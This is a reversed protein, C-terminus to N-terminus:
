PKNAPTADAPTLPRVPAPYVIFTDHADRVVSAGMRHLSAQLEILSAPPLQLAQENPHEKALDPYDEGPERTMEIHAGLIWSVTHTGTFAAVRDISSRYDDFLNTPVYLRGPYLSDGSLLLRTRQDYIMIHAPQHGPTPIIDLTRGGLDFKVIQNPWDRIGFFDAVEAPKRGIVVTDPRDAFEADGAVHDGHGHSHAVVLPISKRHRASLWRQIAEDVAPRIKMGGAGTDLLLVRDRGFILYLFPAEFNTRVSQRIVYTDADYAQLQTQPESASTGDIWHQFPSAPSSAKPPTVCAGSLATFAFVLVRLKM